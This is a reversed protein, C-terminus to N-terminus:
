LPKEAGSSTVIAVSNPAAEAVTFLKAKARRAHFQRYVLIAVGVVVGIAQVVDERALLNVIWVLDSRGFLALFTPIVALIVGMDRLFTAVQDKVPSPNVEIPKDLQM